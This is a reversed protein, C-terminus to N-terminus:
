FDGCVGGNANDFRHLHHILDFGLYRSLDYFNEDFVAGGNLEAFGEEANLLALRKGSVFGSCMRACVVHELVNKYGVSALDGKSYNACRLFQSDSGGCNVRFSVDVGHVNVKSVIRDTDSRWRASLRVELHFCDQGSRLNRIDIRDM